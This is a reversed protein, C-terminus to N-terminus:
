RKKTSSGRDHRLLLIGYTIDYQLKLCESVDAGDELTPNARITALFIRVLKRDLLDQM